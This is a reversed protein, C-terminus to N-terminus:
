ATPSALGPKINSEISNRQVCQREAGEQQNQRKGSGLEPQNGPMAQVDTSRCVLSPTRWYSTFLFCVGAVSGIHNRVAAGGACQSGELVKIGLCYCNSRLVAVVRISKKRKRPMSDRSAKALQSSAFGRGFLTAQESCKHSINEEDRGRFIYVYNDM